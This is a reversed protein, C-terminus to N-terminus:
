KRLLDRIDLLVEFFLRPESSRYIGTNWDNRLQETTRM